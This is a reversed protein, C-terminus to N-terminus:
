DPNGWIVHIIRRLEEAIAKGGFDMVKLAKPGGM